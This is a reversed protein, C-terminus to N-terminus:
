MAALRTAQESAQKVFDQQVTASATAQREFMSRAEATLAGVQAVHREEAERLSSEHGEVEKNATRVNHEAERTVEAFRDDVTQAIRITNEQVTEAQWKCDSAM